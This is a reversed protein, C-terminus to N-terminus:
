FNRIACVNMDIATVCLVNVKVHQLDNVVELLSSRESIYLELKRVNRREIPLCCMSGFCHANAM